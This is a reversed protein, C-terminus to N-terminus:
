AVKYAFHVAGAIVVLIIGFIVMYFLSNGGGGPATPNQKGSAPIDLTYCTPMTESCQCLPSSSNEDVFCSEVGLLDKGCLNECFDLCKSCMPNNEKNCCAPKGIGTADLEVICYAETMGCAKPEPATGNNVIPRNNYLATRLITKEEDTYRGNKRPLVITANQKTINLHRYGERVATNDTLELEQGSEAQQSGEASNIPVSEPTSVPSSSYGNVSGYSFSADLGLPQPEAQPSVRISVFVIAFLAIAICAAMGFSKM